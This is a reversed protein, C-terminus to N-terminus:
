VGPVADMECEVPDIMINANVAMWVEHTTPYLPRAVFVFFGKGSYLNRMWRVFSRDSATVKAAWKEIESSEAGTLHESRYAAATAPFIREYIFCRTSPTPTPAIAFSAPQPKRQCGYALITMTVLIIIWRGSAKNM